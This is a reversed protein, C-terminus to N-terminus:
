RHEDCVFESTVGQTRVYWTAASGCESCSRSANNPSLRKAQDYESKAYVRWISELEDRHTELFAPPLVVRRPPVTPTIGAAVDTTGSWRQPHPLEDRVTTHQEYGCEYWSWVEDTTLWPTVDIEITPSGAGDRADRLYLELPYTVDDHLEGRDGGRVPPFLSEWSQNRWLRQAVEDVLEPPLSIRLTSNDRAETQVEELFLEAEYQTEISDTNVDPFLAEWPQARWVRQAQKDNWERPLTAPVSSTTLRNHWANTWRQQLDALLGLGRWQDSKPIALPWPTYVAGAFLDINPYKGSTDLQDAFVWVTTYEERAYNMTAATIDKQENKYQYEIALGKGYESHPEVFTVYADARKEGLYEEFGWESCDFEALAKSLAVAKGLKHERSEGGGGSNGGTSPTTRGSNGGRRNRRFHRPVFAGDSKVYERVIHMPEETELHVVSDGDEVTFPNVVRAKGDIAGFMPM